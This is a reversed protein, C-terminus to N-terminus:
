VPCKVGDQRHVSGVGFYCTSNTPTMLVHDSLLVRRGQDVGREILQSDLAVGRLSADEMAAMAGFPRATWDAARALSHVPEHAACIDLTAYAASLKCSLPLCTGFPLCACSAQDFWPM